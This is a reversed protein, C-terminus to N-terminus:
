AWDPFRTENHACLLQWSDAVTMSHLEVPMPLLIGGLIPLERGSSSARRQGPAFLGPTTLQLLTPRVPTFVWTLFFRGQRVNRWSCSNRKRLDGGRVRTELGGIRSNMRGMPEQLRLGGCLLWSLNDGRHGQNGEQSPESQFYLEQAELAHISWNQSGLNRLATPIPRCERRPM